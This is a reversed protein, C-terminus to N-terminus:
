KRGNLSLRMLGQLSPRVDNEPDAFLAEDAVPRRRPAARVADAQPAIRAPDEGMATASATASATATARQSAAGGDLLERLSSRSLALRPEARQSAVPAAAAKVEMAAAEARRAAADATMEAKELKLALSRATDIRALLSDHAEEAAAQLAALGSEARAAATDLEVVARAFDAQSARLAKLRGNLKWGMALAGCLLAALLIDLGIAVPSM